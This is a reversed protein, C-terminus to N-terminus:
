ARDGFIRVSQASKIRRAPDWTQRASGIGHLLVLPAGAGRRTFALSTM